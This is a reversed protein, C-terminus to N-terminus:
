LYQINMVTDIYFSLLGLLQITNYGSTLYSWQQMYVSLEPYCFLDVIRSYDIHFSLRNRSHDLIIQTSLGLGPGLAASLQLRCSLSCLRYLQYSIACSFM